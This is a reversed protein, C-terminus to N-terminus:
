KKSIENVRVHERAEVVPMPTQKFHELLLPAAPGGTARVAEEGGAAYASIASWIEAFQQQQTRPDLPFYIAGVVRVLWELKRATASSGGQQILILRTGARRLENAFIAAEHLSEENDHFADGIVIVVRMPRDANEKVAQELVSRIYVYCGCDCSSRDMLGTMNSPDGTWHKTVRLRRVGRANDPGWCAFKILLGGAGAADFMRRVLGKAYSWGPSSEHNAVALLARPVGPAPLKETEEGFMREFADQMLGCKLRSGADQAPAAPAPAKPTKVVDNGM